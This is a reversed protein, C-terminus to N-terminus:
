THKLASPCVTHEPDWWLIKFIYGDLHGWIRQKGNLRLRTLEDLDDLKLQELRKRAETPLKTVPVPHERKKDGLIENWTRAEYEQLKKLLEEVGIHEHIGLWGWTDHSLDLLSFQWVPNHDYNTAIRNKIDPAIRSAKESPKYSARVEKQKKAM